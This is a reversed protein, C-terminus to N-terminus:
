VRIVGLHKDIARRGVAGAAEDIEGINREVVDLFDFHDMPRFASEIARVRHISPNLNERAAPSRAYGFERRESVSAIERCAAAARVKGTQQSSEIIGRANRIQFRLPLAQVIGEPIARQGAVKSPLESIRRAYAQGQAVVDTVRAGGALRQELRRVEGIANDQVIEVRAEASIEGCPRVPSM